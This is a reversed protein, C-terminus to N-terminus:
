QFASIYVCDLFSYIRDKDRFSLDAGCISLSNLKPLSGLFNLCDESCGVVDDLEAGFFHKHVLVKLNNEHIPLNRVNVSAEAGSSGRVLPESTFLSYRRRAQKASSMAMFCTAWTM